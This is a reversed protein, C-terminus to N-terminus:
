TQKAIVDISVIPGGAVAASACYRVFRLFSQELGVTGPEAASALSANIGFGTYALEEDVAAHELDITGATGGEHVRIQYHLENFDGLDVPRGVQDAVVTQRDLLKVAESRTIM